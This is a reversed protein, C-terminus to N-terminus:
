WGPAIGKSIMDVPGRLHQLSFNDISAVFYHSLMLRLTYNQSTQHPIEESVLLQGAVWVSLTGNHRGVAVRQWQGVTLNVGSGVKSGLLWTGNTCLTVTAPLQTENAPRKAQLTSFAALSLSINGTEELLLNFEAMVGNDAKDNFMAPGFWTKPPDCDQSNWCNPWITSVQRLVHKDSADVPGDM